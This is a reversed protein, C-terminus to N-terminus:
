GRNLQKVQTKFNDLEAETEFRVTVGVNGDTISIFPEPSCGCPCSNSVRVLPKGEQLGRKVAEPDIKFSFIKM